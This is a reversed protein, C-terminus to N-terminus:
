LVVDYCFINIYNVNTSTNKEGTSRLCMVLPDIITCIVSYSLSNLLYYLTLEFLSSFLILSSCM